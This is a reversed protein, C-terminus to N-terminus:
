VASEAQRDTAAGVAEELRIAGVHLGQVLGGGGLLGKADYGM